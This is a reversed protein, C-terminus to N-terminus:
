KNEEIIEQFKTYYKKNDEINKMVTTSPGVVVTNGIIIGPMTAVKIGINDNDGVIVGLHRLGSNIKTDKVMAQVPQRDLRANATVIGAAIKTNKGIVSDGIFGTHTSTNKMIITNKVEMQSGVTSGEEVTVGGRIIARNGVVAHKGIYAPGKICVGEYITASEEIVVNGSLVVDEAVSASKAIHSVTLKSLMYDKIGLLDWTYKLTVTEKETILSNVFGKKAFDGLAKEFHYEETPIEELVNLFEQTLLYIAILRYGEKPTKEPKEVINTVKGKEITVLGYRDLVDDKKVLVVANDERQMSQMDKAFDGIDMHYGGLLFFTKELYKKASLLANGMGLASDQTVYIVRIDSRPAISDPIKSSPKVVIVVSTFGAAVLADLTHELLTKGMMVVLSKHEVDSNFPYFRSSNGAALIVAQM